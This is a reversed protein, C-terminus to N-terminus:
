LHKHLEQKNFEQENVPKVPNTPQMEVLKYRKSL